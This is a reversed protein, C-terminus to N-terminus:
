KNKNKTIKELEKAREKQKERPIWHFESSVFEGYKTQNKKKKEKQM